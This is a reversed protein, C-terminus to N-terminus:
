FRAINNEQKIFAPFGNWERGLLLRGANKKGVRQSAFGDGWIHTNKDAVHGNYGSIDLYGTDSIVGGIWDGWQKFHFPVGAIYCSNRLMVFNDPHTPRSHAGSEGGAIVWDIRHLRRAEDQERQKRLGDLIDGNGLALLDVGQWLWRDLNLRGLLPEASIFHKGPVELLADILRQDTAEDGTGASVGYMINTPPSKLWSPPVMDTINQPRKTLLLFFLNPSNPVVEAFFRERLDGTTQGLSEDKRNVLPMSREFIDGMSMVFQTRIVGAAAADEQAKRLDHWVSKIALRPGRIGWHDGGTAKDWTKAYCHHCQATVEYCGWWLNRSDDAWSIKTDNGM